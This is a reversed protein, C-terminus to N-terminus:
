AERTAEDVLMIPIGDRVPYLRQCATCKLGTIAEPTGGKRVELAAKCQPCVLMELLEPSIMRRIKGM